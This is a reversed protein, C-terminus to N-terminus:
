EERVQRRRDNEPHRRYYERKDKYMDEDALRMAVRIDYINVFQTVTKLTSNEKVSKALVSCTGKSFDVLMITCVEAGCLIRIDQIVESLTARFDNTGHLKICTKLVEDSTTPSHTSSFNLNAADTIVTTYACYCLDGDEYDLPMVFANLWLDLKNPHVYTHVPEKLVAARYCLDEFSPNKPIYEYYLSNPVFKRGGETQMGAVCESLPHEIIDIYRKNAAVFRIEDFGGDPTKRVSVISTMPHYSDAIKQFDM